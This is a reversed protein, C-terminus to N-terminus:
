EERSNEMVPMELQFPCIKRRALRYAALTSKKQNLWWNQHISNKFCYLNKLDFTFIYRDFITIAGRGLAELEHSWLENGNTIDLMRLKSKYDGNKLSPTNGDNVYIYDRTVVLGLRIGYGVKKSWSKSKDKRNIAHLMGEDTGNIVWDDTVVPTHTYILCQDGDGTTPHEIWNTELNAPNVGAIFNNPVETEYKFIKTPDDPDSKEVVKIEVTYGSIILEKGDSVSLSDMYMNGFDLQDTIKGNRDDVQYLVAGKKYTQIWGYEIKELEFKSCGIYVKDGIKSPSSLVPTKPLECLWVLSGDDSNFKYLKGGDSIYSRLKGTAIYIFGDQFTPTSDSFHDELPIKWVEKGDM